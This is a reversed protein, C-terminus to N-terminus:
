GAKSPKEDQKQKPDKSRAKARSVVARGRAEEAIQSHAESVRGRYILWQIPEPLELWYNILKPILLNRKFGKNQCYDTFKEAFDASVRTGLMKEDKEAFNEMIYTDYM